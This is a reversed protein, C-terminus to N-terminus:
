SKRKAASAALRRILVAARKAQRTLSTLDVEEQASHANGGGLGFGVLADVKDAVFSIDGGGRTKPDAAEQTSLGIDRNVQNLEDLLQRNGQTPEMPPYAREFSIETKTGPLPNAVAARMKEEARKELASTMARFEGRAFAAGPVINDKGVAAVKNEASEVNVSTGCGKAM